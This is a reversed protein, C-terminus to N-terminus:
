RNARDGSRNQRPHQVRPVSKQKARRNEHDMVTKTAGAYVRASLRAFIRKLVPYLMGAALVGLLNGGVMFSWFSVGEIGVYRALPENVWTMWSPNFALTEFGCLGRLLFEGFFYDASYFPVMTWPNNLFAGAFVAAGNLSFLWTFGLVMLTHFGPFPSFSIFVGVCVSRALVEPSREKLVLKTFLSILYQKPKQYILKLM